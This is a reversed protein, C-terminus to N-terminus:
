EKGKNLLTMILSKASVNGALPGRARAHSTDSLGNFTSPSPELRKNPGVRTHQQTKGEPTSQACLCDKSFKARQALSSDTLRVPEQFSKASAETRCEFRLPEEVVDFCPATPSPDPTGGM